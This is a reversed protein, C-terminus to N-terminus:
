FIVQVEQTNSDPLPLTFNPDVALGELYFTTLPPLGGLGLNVEEVGNAPVTVTLLNFLNTFNNGIGVSFFGPVSTPLNSTSGLIVFLDNPYSACKLPLGGASFVTVPEDGSGAQLAPPDNAVFTLLGVASQSGNKVTVISLGLKGDPPDMTITTSNVYTYPSPIGFLPVGDVEVTTSPQFGTGSITVIQDSGVNLSDVSSPTIGTISLSGGGGGPEDTGDLSQAGSGIPDLWQALNGSNWFSGFKGFWATQTGCTFTNVCCAPGIVRQFGNFLPGGSNGGIIYGTHWFVQWDNGSSSAGSNDIAINKPGGGGHGITAAPSTTGNIRDWGAWYPDFSAPPTTNLRYLQSDYTSSAALQQAGSITSGTPGFSTGCSAQEYEFMFQGSAMFGCHNATLMYPTGDESTNNLLSASCLSGGALTRMVSRKVTQYPAGEPCNIGVLGCGGDPPGASGSGSSLIIENVNKYDYIVEGVRLRPVESVSAPQVYEVTVSDGTFPQIGLLGNVNNNSATYAGLVESMDDNYLFVQGGAPVEYESFVIGLTFAGPAEIRQRWVLLGEAEEWIGDSTVGLSTTLIEGYRLPFPGTAEDEALLAAVDPVPLVETPVTGTLEAWSSAPRGPESLQAALPATLAVGAAAVSAARLAQLPNM